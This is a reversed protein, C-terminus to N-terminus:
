EEEKRVWPTDYGFTDAVDEIIKMRIEAANKGPCKKCQECVHMDHTLACVLKGYLETKKPKAM